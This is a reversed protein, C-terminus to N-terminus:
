HEIALAAAFGDPAQLDHLLWSRGSINLSVSSKPAAADSIVELQFIEERLGHGIAKAYAEKRTWARLFAATQSAATPLGRWVILEQSSLIRTALDALHDESRKLRIASELDIGVQPGTSIAFISWGTSHSVNFQINPLGVAPKGHEGYQFAIDSPAENLSAGLLVRLLGRTVVYSKQDREFRFRDARAAENPDLFTRLESVESNSFSDVDATWIKAGSLPSDPSELLRPHM